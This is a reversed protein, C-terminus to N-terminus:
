YLVRRTLWRALVTTGGSPNPKFNDIALFNPTHVQTKVHALQTGLNFDVRGLGPVM